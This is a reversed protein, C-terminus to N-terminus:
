WTIPPTPHFLLQFCEQMKLSGSMRNMLFKRIFLILPENFFRIADDTAHQIAEDRFQMYRKFFIFEPDAQFVAPRDFTQDLTPTFLASFDTHASADPVTSAMVCLLLIIWVRM